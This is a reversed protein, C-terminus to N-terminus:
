VSQAYDRLARNKLRSVPIPQELLPLVLLYGQSNGDVTKVKGMNVLFSRHCRFFMPYASVQEEINQLTNRLLTKVLGGNKEWYIEVYNNVSEIVLLQELVISLKEKGNEGVLLLRTHAPNANVQKQPHQNALQQTLVQAQRLNKQLALYYKVLVIMTIPILGVLLTAFALDLFGFFSIPLGDLAVTLLYNALSVMGLLFLYYLLQHYVKWAEERYISPLLRSLLFASLGITLGSVLGHGLLRLLQWDHLLHMGFPRFALLFCTVFLATWWANKYARKVGFLPFPQALLTRSHTLLNM